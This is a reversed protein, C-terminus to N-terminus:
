LRQNCGYQRGAEMFWDIKQVETGFPIECGTSLVGGQKAHKLAEACTGVAQFIDAKTGSMVVDVPPVNGAIPIFEGLEAAAKKLDIINDLSVENVCLKKFYDWIRYTKGCMHLSVKKDSVKHVYDTLEQTYPFVFEGYLKPGILEPNAMPDAMAIGLGYETMAKICSKESDTVIRMLQHVKEPRKMCDRLLFEPGRLYSAITFPGGISAEVPVVAIAEKSLMEAAKLFTLIRPHSHADVPCMGKLSDYEKVSPQWIDPLRKASYVVNAGLSEAIAYSNPGIMMRDHGFRNFVHIEIEAMKEPNHWFEVIGAGSIQCKVEGMLPNCPLRDYERGKEIAKKRELPTMKDERNAMIKM